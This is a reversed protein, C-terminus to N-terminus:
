HSYKELLFRKLEDFSQFFETACGFVWGPIDTLHKATVLYVPKNFYAALTIEGKTGAGRQASDDWFCILYASRNVIADSDKRVIARLLETYARIDCLKMLRFSRGQLRSRLFRESETNPNFASHRLEKKLWREMKSRWGAGEGAAYEMGGSLYATRNHRRM